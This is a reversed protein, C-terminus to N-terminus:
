CSTFNFRIEDKITWVVIFKGCSICQGVGHEDSDRLRIFHSFVRGLKAKTTKYTM